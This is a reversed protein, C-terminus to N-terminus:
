TSTLQFVGALPQAEDRLVQPGGVMGKVLASLTNREGGGSFFFMTASLLILGLPLWGFPLFGAIWSLLRCRLM